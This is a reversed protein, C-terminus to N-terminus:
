VQYSLGFATTVRPKYSNADPPLETPQITVITPRLRAPKLVFAHGEKDFIYSYHELNSDFNPFNMGVMQCGLSMAISSNINSNSSSLDPMCITMSTKNYVKLDEINSAYQVDHNNLARMFVEGSCLNTFEDLETNELVVNSDSKNVIIIVKELFNCIQEKGLNQSGHEGAFEYSYKKDLLRGSPEIKEKIIKAMKNYTAEIDTKMRFHLLLPDKSNACGGSSFANNIIITLVDSFNMSNYTEKITRDLVSSTAVVPEDNVTYIEFDLCRAGQSIANKLACADVYDNKFQGTACCNYATKIYYDRLSYTDVNSELISHLTNKTDKYIGNISSCNRNKLTLKNIFWFLTLVILLIMVIKSMISSLKNGTALDAGRAMFNNLHNKAVDM